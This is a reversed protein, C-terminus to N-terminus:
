APPWNPSPATNRRARAARSRMSEGSCTYASSAIPRGRLQVVLGLLVWNTGFRFVKHSSSSLVVDLFVGRFAIKAGAPPLTHGRRRGWGPQRAGLLGAPPGPPHPRHRRLKLRSSLVPQLRRRRQATPGRGHDGLRSPYYAPRPLRDLRCFLSFIEERFAVTLPALLLDLSPMHQFM